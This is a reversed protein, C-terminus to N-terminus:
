VGGPTLPQGERALFVQYVPETESIRRAFGQGSWPGFGAIQTMGIRESAVDPYRLTFSCVDDGCRADQVQAGHYSTGWGQITSVADNAWRADKPNAAIRESLAEVLRAEEAIAKAEEEEPSWEEEAQGNELEGVANWLEDVDSELGHQRRQLETLAGDARPKAHAPSGPSRESRPLPTPEPSDAAPRTAVWMTTLGVVVGVLSFIVSRM